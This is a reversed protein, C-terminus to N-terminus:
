NTPSDQAIVRGIITHLARLEELSMPDGQLNGGKGWGLYYEIKSTSVGSKRIEDRLIQVKSELDTM